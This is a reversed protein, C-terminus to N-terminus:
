IETNTSEGVAIVLLDFVHGLFYFLSIICACSHPMHFLLSTQIRYIKNASLMHLFIYRTIVAGVLLDLYIYFMFTVSIALFGFSGVNVPWEFQFHKFLQFREM